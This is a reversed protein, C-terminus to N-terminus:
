VFNNRKTKDQGGRIVYSGINKNVRYFDAENKIYSCMAPHRTDM